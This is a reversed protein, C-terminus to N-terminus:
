RQKEFSPLTVSTHLPLSTLASKMVINQHLADFLSPPKHKIHRPSSSTVTRLHEPSMSKDISQVDWKQSTSASRTTQSPFLTRQSFEAPSWMIPNLHSSISNRPFYLHAMGSWSIRKWIKKWLLCTSNPKSGYFALYLVELKVLLFDERTSGVRNDSSHSLFRM